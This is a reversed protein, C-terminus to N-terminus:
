NQNVIWFSESLFDTSNSGVFVKFEGEEVGWKQDSKLYFLQEPKLSFTVSTEEGKKIFVKKFGKLEKVPRTTSGVMDRTYLQVIEEGDYRGTNKVNVSIKLSEDMKIVSRALKLNSYEFTSYSLGYGFPFLPTNEVDLYKTTYKDDENFPRGTTKYNYYIPVQGINRPFSVPLKGSPNYKGSIVDVIAHAGETGPHWAEIVADSLEVEKAITLPRGNILVTVIPKALAKLEKLLETQEGPLNISSRSAAEGAMEFSEGLVMVIVDAQKAKQIAESFGSKDTGKIECGKTFTVNGLGYEEKFADYISLMGEENGECIWSGLLQRKENALPGILAIKQKKLPLINNDQGSLSANKLLVLSRKAMERAFKLHGSSLIESRERDSNCYKYPDDFLGLSFKMELIKGVSIDLTNESIKGENILTKLNREYFGSQMDMDLGATFSRETAEIENVAVGHNLLHMVSEYDSVVFGNFGWQERLLETLLYNNCTAPVGFLDSFSTMVTAVGADIAAKYPPLYEEILVKMSIEVTNYDRGAVPAGYGAFHKLCALATNELSLDNGQIGRVKAAVMCSGLYPDEGSGETIRGWRPDRSIDAIPAFIWNIGAATAETAAIRSAKEVMEVDWTSAGAIPTPFITKYGHIVDYGIFLPIGLRTQEVAAKQLQTTYEVTFANFIGGCMGSTVALLYDENISPGTVDLTSSYLVLQGIKEDITMLALLSDVKLKIQSEKFFDGSKVETNETDNARFCSTCFIVLSIM